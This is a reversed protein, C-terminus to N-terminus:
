LRGLCYMLTCVCHPNITTPWKKMIFRVFINIKSKNHDTNHTSPSNTQKITQNSFRNTISKLFYTQFKPKKEFSIIDFTIKELASMCTTYACTCKTNNPTLLLKGNLIVLLNKKELRSILSRISCGIIFKVYWDILREFRINNNNYYYYFHM